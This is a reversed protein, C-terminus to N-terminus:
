SHGHATREVPYLFDRRGRDVSREALQEYVHIYDETMRKLSFKEEVWRRCGVRDISSVQAAKKALGEISLDMFGTVGDRTIEPVSGCPRCLVPTGCALSEIVVLGFPEPWDIPFVLAYAGGLFSSKREDDIEGVFEVTKGDVHPKVHRDYYAQGYEGEIKAAIKLPIGAKKAIEIAWEPRKDPGIRGLFALYKGPEPHFRLHTLDLGHHITRIYRLYPLPERQADSITVFHSDAFGGFAAHADPGSLKGHITTVMPTQVMRDLPLMWYDHHNHIVDFHKARRAVSALMKFNYADPDVLPKKRLRLAEDIVPVLEVDPVASDASAFLTVECGAKTLGRCLNFIVRETGGYLRPPVSEFLPSIMAIRRVRM